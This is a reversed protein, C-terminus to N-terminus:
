EIPTIKLTLKAQALTLVINAQWLSQKSYRIDVIERGSGSGSGNTKGGIDGSAYLKRCMMAECAPSTIIGGQLHRNLDDLPWYILQLLGLLYEAKFQDGLLLSQESNLLEGDFTLTFLAQGLPALGVLTLQEPSLELQSMLQHRKGDVDLNVRQSQSHQSNQLLPALCYDLDTALTMCTQRQLHQACGSMGIVVWLLILSRILSHKTM